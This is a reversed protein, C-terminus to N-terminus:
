IIIATPIDTHGPFFESDTRGLSVLSTACPCKSGHSETIANFLRHFAKNPLNRQQFCERPKRLRWTKRTHRCMDKQGSIMQLIACVPRSNRVWGLTTFARNSAASFATCPWALIQIWWIQSWFQYHVVLAPYRASTAFHSFFYCFLLLLLVLTFVLLLLFFFIVLSFWYTLIDCVTRLYDWFSITETVLCHMNRWSLIHTKNRSSSSCTRIPQSTKM